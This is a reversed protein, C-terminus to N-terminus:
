ASATANRKRARLTLALLGLGGLAFPVVTAPEPVTAPAPGASTSGKFSVSSGPSLLFALKAGLDTVPVATLGSASFGGAPGYTYTGAAPGFTQATGAGIGTDVGNVVADVLVDAREPESVGRRRPQHLHGVAPRYDPSGAPASAPADISFGFPVTNSTLNSVSFTFTVTSDAHAPCACGTGLRRTRGPALLGQLVNADTM